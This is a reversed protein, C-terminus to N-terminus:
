KALSAYFAVEHGVLLAMRPEPLSYLPGTWPHLYIRSDTHLLRLADHFTGVSPSGQYSLSEYLDSLPYDRAIGTSATWQELRSYITEALNTCPEAELVAVNSSMAGNRHAVLVPVKRENLMIRPLSAREAVVQPLVLARGCLRTAHVTAPLRRIFDKLM